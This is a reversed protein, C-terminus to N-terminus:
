NTIVIKALAHGEAPCRIAGPAGALPRAASSRPKM